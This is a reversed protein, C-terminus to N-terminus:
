RRWVKEIYHLFGCKKCAYWRIYFSPQANKVEYLNEGCNPCLKLPSKYEEHGVKWSSEAETLM